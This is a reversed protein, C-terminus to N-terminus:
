TVRRSKNRSAQHVPMKKVERGLSLVGQGRSTRKSVTCGLVRKRKEKVWLFFNRGTTVKLSIGGTSKSEPRRSGKKESGKGRTLHGDVPAKKLIRFAGDESAHHQRSKGTKGSGLTDVEDSLTWESSVPAAGRGSQLLTPCSWECGGRFSPPDQGVHWEREM